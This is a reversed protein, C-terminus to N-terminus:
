NKVFLISLAIGSLVAVTLYNLALEIKPHKELLKKFMGACASVASFVVAAQVAFILGFILFNCATEFVTESPPLFQPFVALFIFILKPNLAAMCFGKAFCAPVSVGPATEGASANGRSFMADKRHKWANFALWLLYITGAIKVTLFIKGDACIVPAAGVAALTTHVLTGSAMGCGTAIGARAGRTMSLPVLYLLDPGPSLTLLIMAGLFVLM